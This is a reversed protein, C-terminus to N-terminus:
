EAMPCDKHGFGYGRGRGEFGYQEKLAQMAEPDGNAEHIAARFQKMEAHKERIQEFTEENINDQMRQVREQMISAWENYNNNEVSERVAERESKIAEKDEGYFVGNGGFAAVLSVALLAIIGFVVSVKTSNKM